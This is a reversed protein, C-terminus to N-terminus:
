IKKRLVRKDGVRMTLKERDFFELLPISYKRSLGTLQKFDALTLEKHQALFTQLKHQLESIKSAFVYFQENVKIVKHERELIGLLIQIQKVELNLRTGIEKLSPPTLGAKQLMKLIKDLLVKQEGLVVVKHSKLRVFQNDEIIKGQKKLKELVFSVYRPELEKGWNSFVEGKSIGELFPNKQHFKNLFDLLEQGKTHIFDNPVYERLDKSLLFIEQRSTLAQLEKQLLKSDLNTLVILKDFSLGPTGKRKLVNVVLDSPKLKELQRFYTLDCSRRKLHEAMPDLVVGGGITQLPSFSRIVFRDGFVGVMHEPFKIQALITEGPELEDKELFYVRALVEKSGHHFHVETRHKLPRGASSLYQLRVTWVKAPFLTKPRALVDGRDLKDKDIGQLNLATRQGAKAIQQTTSHVQINRVKALLEKPYVEVEEGVKIDGSITTGTVVTGYGHLTFVRDLPLRFLDSKTKKELQKVQFSIAKKLDELGQGTTASVSIIDAEHLFSDKLYARVDEKVMELWDQDVLDVKSLVVLGQSIGLLSCIELHEKTQPMIGEDAAIVLLVFDIGAAGAVMNKVFKEHGPVDVISVRTGDPLDLYAFGLEITIGRKKEEALRDCDIGTLAKILTTKGHDIHGATGMVISM